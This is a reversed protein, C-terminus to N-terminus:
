ATRSRESKPECQPTNVALLVSLVEFVLRILIMGAAAMLVGWVLVSTQGELFAHLLAVLLGPHVFITEIIVAWLILDGLHRSMFESAEAIRGLFEAQRRKPVLRFVRRGGVSRGILRVDHAYLATVYCGLIIGPLVMGFWGASITPLGIDFTVVLIVAGYATLFAPLSILVLAGFRVSRYAWTGCIRAGIWGSISSIAVAVAVGLTMLIATNVARDRLMSAVATGSETVGFDWDALRRLYFEALSLLGPHSETGAYLAVFWGFHVVFAGLLVITYRGLLQAVKHSRIM